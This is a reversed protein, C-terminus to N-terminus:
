HIIQTLAGRRPQAKNSLPTSYWLPIVCAVRFVVVLGESAVDPTTMTVMEWSYALQCDLGSIIRTRTHTKRTNSDVPQCPSVSNLRLLNLTDINIMLSAYFLLIVILRSKFSKWALLQEISSLTTSVWSLPFHTSFIAPVFPAFSPWRLILPLFLFLSLLLPVTCPKILTAIFLRPGSM